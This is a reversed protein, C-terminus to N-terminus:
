SLERYKHHLFKALTVCPCICVIIQIYCVYNSLSEVCCAYYQLLYRLAAKCFVWLMKSKDMLCVCQTRLKVWLGFIATQSVIIVMVFLYVILINLQVEIKSYLLFHGLGLILTCWTTVICCLHATTETYSHVWVSNTHHTRIHLHTCLSLLNNSFVTFSFGGIFEGYAATLRGGVIEEEVM